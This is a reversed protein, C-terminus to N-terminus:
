IVQANNLAFEFSRDSNSTHHMKSKYWFLKNDKSLNILKREKHTNDLLSAAIKIWRKILTCGPSNLSRSKLFSFNILYSM